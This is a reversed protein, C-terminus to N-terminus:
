LCRSFWLCVFIIARWAEKGEEVSSPLRCVWVTVLWLAVLMCNFDCVFAWHEVISDSGRWPLSTHMWVLWSRRRVFRSSYPHSIEWVVLQGGTFSFQFWHYLYYFILTVSVHGISLSINFADCICETAISIYLFFLILLIAPWTRCVISHNMSPVIYTYYRNPYYSNWIKLWSNLFTDWPFCPVQHRFETIQM